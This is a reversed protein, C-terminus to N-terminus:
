AVKLEEEEKNILLLFRILCIYASLEGDETLLFGTHKNVAKYQM